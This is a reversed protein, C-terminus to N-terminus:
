IARFPFFMYNKGMESCTFDQVACVLAVSNENMYNLIQSFTNDGECEAYIYEYSPIVWKEISIGYDLIVNGNEDPMTFRPCNYREFCWDDEKRKLGLAKLENLGM